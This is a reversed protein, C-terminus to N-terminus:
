PRLLIKLGVREHVYFAVLKILTDVVGISLAIVPKRTVIWAVSITM